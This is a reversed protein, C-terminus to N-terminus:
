ADHCFRQIPFTFVFLDDTLWKMVFEFVLTYLFNYELKVPKFVSSM